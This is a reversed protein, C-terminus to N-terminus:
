GCLRRFSTSCAFRCSCLRYPPWEQVDGASTRQNANEHVHVNLTCSAVMTEASLQFTQFPGLSLWSHSLWRSQWQRAVIRRRYSLWAQGGRLVCCVGFRSSWRSAVYTPQLECKLTCGNIIPTIPAYSIRMEQKESDSDPDSDSDTKQDTGNPM